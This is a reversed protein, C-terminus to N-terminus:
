VTLLLQVGSYYSTSTVLENFARAKVGHAGSNENIKVAIAAAQLEDEALASTGSLNQNAGDVATQTTDFDTATWDQGNIKIDSKGIIATIETIRGSTLVSPSNAAGSNGVGLASTTTNQLGIDLSDTGSIGIQM